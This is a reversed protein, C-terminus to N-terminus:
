ENNQWHFRKESDAKSFVFITWYADFGSRLLAEHRHSGDSLQFDQWIDTVILPPLDIKQQICATLENVREEWKESPETFLMGPEPGMIRILKTLPFNELKISTPKTKLLIDALKHNNGESRLYDQLWTSLRGKEAAEQCGQLTFTYPSPNM